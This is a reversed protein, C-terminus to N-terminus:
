KFVVHFRYRNRDKLQLGSTVIEKSTQRECFKSIKREPVM